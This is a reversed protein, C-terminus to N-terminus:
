GAYGQLELVQHVDIMMHIAAEQMTRLLGWSSLPRLTDRLM